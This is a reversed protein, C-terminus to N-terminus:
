CGSGVSSAAVMSVDSRSTMPQEDEDTVQRRQRPPRAKFEAEAQAMATALEAAEAAAAQAVNAPRPKRGLMLHLAKPDAGVGCDELTMQGDALPKGKFILRGIPGVGAARRSMGLLTEVTTGSSVTFSHAGGTDAPSGDRSFYLLRVTVEMPRSAEQGGLLTKQQQQQQWRRQQLPGSDDLRQSTNGDIQPLTPCLIRRRSVKVPKSGRWGSGTQRMEVVPADHVETLTAM